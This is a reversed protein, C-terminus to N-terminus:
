ETQGELCALPKMELGRLTNELNYGYHTKRAYLKTFVTMIFLSLILM